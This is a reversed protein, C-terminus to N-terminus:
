RTGSLMQRRLTGLRRRVSGDMVTDGVRVVVGGLIAPNVVVHPLVEKGLSRSLQAAIAARGEEGVDRAVTVQAHVRNLSADLLNNYEVAVAPLLMQRRNDILKEIFLVFMRPARDALARAFVAKKQAADVQPAELFRLLREDREVASAVDGLLRGWGVTDDARRALTLLADAYNRAITSDRM